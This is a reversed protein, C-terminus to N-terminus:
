PKTRELLARAHDEARITAEQFLRAPSNPAGVPKSRFVPNRLLLNSLAERLESNVQLAAPLSQAAHVLYAALIQATDENGRYYFDAGVDPDPGGYWLETPNDPNISIKEPTFGEPVKSKDM